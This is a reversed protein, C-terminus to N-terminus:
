RQCAPGAHCASRGGWAHGLRVGDGSHGDGGRLRRTLAMSELSGPGKFLLAMGGADVRAGSAGDWGLECDGRRLRAGGNAM